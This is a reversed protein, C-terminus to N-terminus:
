VHARGIEGNLNLDSAVDLVVIGGSTGDWAMAAPPTAAWGPFARRAAEVASDVQALEAKVVVAEAQGAVDGSVSISRPRGWHGAESLSGSVAFATTDYKAGTFVIPAAQANAAGLAALVLLGAAVVGASVTAGVVAASVDGAPRRRGAATGSLGM